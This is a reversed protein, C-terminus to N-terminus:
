SINSSGAREYYVPGLRKRLAMTQMRLRRVGDCGWAKKRLWGDEAQSGWAPNSLLSLLREDSLHKHALPHDFAVVGVDIIIRCFRPVRRRPHAFPQRTEVYLEAAPMVLRDTRVEVRHILRNESRLLETLNHGPEHEVTFAQGHEHM